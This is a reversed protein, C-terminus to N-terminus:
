SRRRRAVTVLGGFAVLGLSMGHPEPIAAAGAASMGFNASLALFDQFGISGDLDVDGNGYSGALDDDGFNASLTLFDPFGVEGDLDLDGAFAGIAELTGAITDGTACVVDEATVMGDGNCDLPDAVSTTSIILNDFIGFSLEETPSVSSFIDAFLVAVDGGLNVATGNSNDITGIEVANGTETDMITFTAIGTDDTVGAPGLADTDVSATITMWRFGGSGAPTMGFIFQGPVASELDIPPFAATFADSDNNLSEVAYQNTELEQRELDKYLIYDRSSDGDTDYIFSAGNRGGTEGDHGVALGGFETTGAAGDPFNYNLWADVQVEYQGSLELGATAVAIETATLEFLNAELKLGSREAGATAASNPAEPIDDFEAYDYGFTFRTDESGPLAVFGDEADFNSQFVVDQALLTGPLLFCTAIFSWRSTM